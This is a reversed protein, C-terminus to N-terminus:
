STMAQRMQALMADAVHDWTKSQLIRARGQQGLRRAQARDGLLRVLARALAGVDGPPVLLGTIGHEIADTVGGDAMALTPTECANAELFVLGFGEVDPRTSRAPMAFVDAASFLAPLSQDEVHGIFSVRPGIALEGVIRALRERDYGTGAVVYHANPVAKLVSPLARLMTDIGKRRVLRALTLVVPDDGVGWRQRWSSGDVPRFNQADVGNNIVAIRDSAVQNEAVLQGTYRSVPFVRDARPLVFRRFRRNAGTHGILDIMLERGHAAVFVRRTLRLARALLGSHATNWQAHLVADFRFRACLAPVATTCAVDMHWRDRAPVRFVRHPASRDFRADGRTAPALVALGPCVKAFRAALERCYSQIGGITPPFDETVVLLKM